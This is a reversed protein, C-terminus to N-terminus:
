GTRIQKEGVTTPNDGASAAIPDMTLNHHILLANARELAAAAEAETAAADEALRFLMRIREVADDNAM